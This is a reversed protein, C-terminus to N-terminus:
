FGTWQNDWQNAVADTTSQQTGSAGYSKWQGAAATTAAATQMQPAANWGQWSQQAMGTMQHGTWAQQQGWGQQDVQWNNGAAVGWQQQPQHAWNNWSGAASGNNATM